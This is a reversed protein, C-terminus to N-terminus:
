RHTQVVEDAVSLASVGISAWLIVGLGGRALATPLVSPLLPLWLVELTVIAWVLLTLGGFLNARSATKPSITSRTAAFVAASLAVIAYVIWTPFARADVPTALAEGVIVLGALLAASGLVVAPVLPRGRKWALLPLLGLAGALVAPVPSVSPVWILEGHVVTEQGDVLVPVEWPFILQRETRSVVPPPDPSMWHSRHDHWAYQGGSGVQVWRPEGEADLDGPIDANGYRDLNIYYAPSNQNLWVTGDRDIWLYPEDFYGPIEVEHGPQVTVQLFSDGGIVSFEAVNTNPTIRTVTSQYNTPVAPDATAPAAGAMLLVLTAAAVIAIRRNV